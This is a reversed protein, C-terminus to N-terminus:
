KLIKILYEKTLNKKLYDTIEKGIEEREKTLKEYGFLKNRLLQGLSIQQESAELEFQEKQSPLLGFTIQSGTEIKKNKPM